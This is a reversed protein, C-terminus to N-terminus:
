KLMLNKVKKLLRYTKTKASDESIQLFFGIEKFTRDEFFRWELLQIEFTDLGVMIKALKDLQGDTNDNETAVIIREVGILDLSVNFEANKNKRYYLNLENTAIKFLWSSFRYGNFKFNNINKLALYFTQSTIDDTIFENQVRKHVYLFIREFYIDYIKNFFAPNQQANTVLRVEEENGIPDVNGVIDSFLINFARSYNLVITM